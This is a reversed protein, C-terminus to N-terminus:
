HAYSQASDCVVHCLVTRIIKGRLKGVFVMARVIYVPTSPCQVAPTNDVIMKMYDTWHKFLACFITVYIHDTVHSCISRVLVHELYYCFM